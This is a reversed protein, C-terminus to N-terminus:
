PRQELLPLVVTFTSGEGVESDVLLQGGHQEVIGKAIALGLGTGSRRPDDARQVRYFREFLRPIEHAPIGIGTDAIHIYAQREYVEVRVEVAGGEPTYKIANSILNELAHNFRDPAILATLPQSPAVFTLRINRRNAAVEFEHVLVRVYSILNTERVSTQDLRGEARALQLMDDILRKMKDAAREMMHLQRETSAPLTALQSQLDDRLLHIVGSIIGLPNKLDHTVMRLIDDKLQNLQELYAIERLRMTEVERRSLAHDLHTQLRAVVEEIKFPKTIYDVGGARFGQVKDAVEDLASLFLIPVNAFASDAKLTRCVTYGDMDPLGVDLLVLDPTRRAVQTYAGEGNIALVVEYGRMQLLDTLMQLSAPADDVVLIQPVTM